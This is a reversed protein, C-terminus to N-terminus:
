PKEGGPEDEIDENTTREENQNIRIEILQDYKPEEEMTLTSIKLKDKIDEEIDEM